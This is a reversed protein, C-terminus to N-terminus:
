SRDSASEEFPSLVFMSSLVPGAALVLPEPEGVVYRDTSGVSGEPAMLPEVLGRGTGM